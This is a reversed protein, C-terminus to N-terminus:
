KLDYTMVKENERLFLKRDVVVPHAWSKGESKVSQNFYGLPRYQDGDAEVMAVVGNQYRFILKEDVYVVAASGRGPGRFGGWKLKGNSLQICTPFGQNEGAGFFLHGDYAVMGGHHCELRDTSPRNIQKLLENQDTSDVRIICLGGAPASSYVIRSDAYVPSCINSKRNAYLTHLWSVKGTRSDIGVLGRGLFQVYQPAGLGLDAKIMSSYGAGENLKQGHINKGPVDEVFGSRWIEKGTKKDLAVVLAGFGGPTVVVRNEDVLPSESYGWGSMLRGGFDEQFNKKWVVTGQNTIDLCFLQGDSSTVYLRDEDITPTSRAGMVAHNPLADLLDKKWVTKGSELDLCVVFQTQDSNGTTYLKGDVISFSSYGKGVGDFENILPPKKNKWSKAIGISPSHGDRNPGRFQPWDEAFALNGVQMLLLTVLVLIRKRSCLLVM